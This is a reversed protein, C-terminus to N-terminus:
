SSIYIISAGLYFTNQFCTVNVIKTNKQKRVLIFEQASYERADFSARCTM